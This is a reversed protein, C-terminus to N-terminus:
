NYNSSYCHKKLRVAMAFAQTDLPSSGPTFSNVLLDLIFHLEADANSNNFFIFNLIVVVNIFLIMIKNKFEFFM